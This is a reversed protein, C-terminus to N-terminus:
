YKCVQISIIVTHRFHGEPAGPPDTEAVLGATQLRLHALQEKMETVRCKDQPMQLQNEEESITEALYSEHHM